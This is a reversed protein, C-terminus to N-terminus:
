SYATSLCLKLYRWVTLAYGPVGKTMVVLTPLTSLCLSALISLSLCGLKNLSIKNKFHSWIFFSSHKDRAHM